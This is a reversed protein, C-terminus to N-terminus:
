TRNNLLSNFISNKFGPWELSSTFIIKENQKDDGPQSSNVFSILCLHRLSVLLESQVGTTSANRKVCQNGMKIVVSILSFYLPLISFLCVFFIGLWTIANM